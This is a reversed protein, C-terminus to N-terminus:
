RAVTPQDALGLWIAIVEARTRAGLKTYIHNIHNKVTKETVYLRAAIERNTRGCVIHEMLEAERRSVRARPSPEPEPEPEAQADPISQTRFSEVMAALAGPSLYPRREATAVVAAVLDAAAFQGHILYSTAGNRFAHEVLHREQSHSVVLVLAQDPLALAADGDAALAGHSAVIVDPTLSRARSVTETRDGAEGVVSVVDSGELVSRIGLRVLLNDDSILARVRTASSSHAQTIM